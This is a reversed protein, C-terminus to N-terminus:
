MFFSFRKSQSAVQQLRTELKNGDELLGGQPKGDPGPKGHVMDYIAQLRRTYYYESVTPETGKLITDRIPNQLLLLLKKTPVSDTGSTALDGKLYPSQGPENRYAFATPQDQGCDAVPTNSTGCYVGALEVLKAGFEVRDTDTPAQILVGYRSQHALVGDQITNADGAEKGKKLVIEDGIAAKNHQDIMDKIEAVGAYFALLQNVTPGDTILHEANHLKGQMEEKVELRAAIDKLAKDTDVDPKLGHKTRADDLTTDLDSLAKKLFMVSSPSTKDGLIVKAGAIGDNFNSATSGIKGVAIGVILAIAAPVAIRLLTAAGSKQGVHEVPNGDNVVVIEPPRQVAAVAAMANMAGFPDDHANPVVPQPASQPLGPPPPLNMGPPPVVGGSPAGNARTATGTPQAAAAGGKKLGLRQKLESIDRSGTKKADSM